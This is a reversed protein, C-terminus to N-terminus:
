LWQKRKFYITLGLIVSAMVGLAIYYGYRSHLEPMHEFNMGYVGAILTPVLLIISASTLTKMVANMRNSSMALYADLAGSLIERFTDIMDVIRVSHDYLDQFYAFHRGGSDADRRLLINVVDRTPGAVRRVQLLCRRLAFIDASLKEQFDQFLADQFESLRDDITELAPFYEDLVEDMIEYLLYTAGGEMLAPRREWRQHLDEFPKLPTEHLTVVYDGGLLCDIEHLYIKMDRGSGEIELAHIIIYLYDGYDHLKPRGEYNMLDEVVTEHLGFRSVLLQYDADQPNTVDIWLLEGARCQSRTRVFGNTESQPESAGHPACSLIEGSELSRLHNSNKDYLWARLMFGM